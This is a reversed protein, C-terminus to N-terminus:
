RVTISVPDSRIEVRCRNAELQSNCGTWRLPHGARGSAIIDFASNAPVEFRCNADDSCSLHMSATRVSANIGPGVRLYFNSPTSSTAFLWSAASLSTLGIGLM